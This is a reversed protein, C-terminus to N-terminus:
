ILNADCPILKREYSFKIKSVRYGGFFFGLFSSDLNVDIHIVINVNCPCDVSRM